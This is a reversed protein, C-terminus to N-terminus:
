LINVGALEDLGYGEQVWGNLGLRKFEKVLSAYEDKSIRRNIEKFEEAKYYPAYQSMLSVYAQASTENKIFRLTEFTGSIDGPLVLLRIILGKKIVDEEDLEVDGVQKFMDKINVRNIRAYDKAGSYKLAQRNDSYRMDVLYIDMLGDLLELTEKSEYGSTNWCIPLNLGKEVAIKLSQLIQLTFHTPTVLNINHVKRNQLEIMMSALGEIGVVQGQDLQSIEYNQCYCCALNCHSFFIAGSGRSGSIPPEEGRHVMFTSVKLEKGIRCFGRKDEARDVRCSHSCFHCDSFIKKAEQIKKDIEGSEFAQRYGPYLEKNM